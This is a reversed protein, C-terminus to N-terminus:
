RPDHDLSRRFILLYTIAKNAKLITFSFMRGVRVKTDYVSQHATEHLEDRAFVPKNVEEEV